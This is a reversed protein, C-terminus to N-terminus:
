VARSVRIIWFPTQILTWVRSELARRKWGKDWTVYTIHGRQNLGNALGNSIAQDRYSLLLAHKKNKFTKKPIKVFFAASFYFAKTQIVKFSELVFWREFTSRLRITEISKKCFNPLFTHDLLVYQWYPISQNLLIIWSYTLLYRFWFQFSSRPRPRWLTPHAKRITMQELNRKSCYQSSSWRFSADWTIIQSFIRLKFEIKDEFNGFVRAIERDTLM